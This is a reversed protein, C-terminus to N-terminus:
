LRFSLACIQVITPAKKQLHGNQTSKGEHGVDILYIYTLLGVKEAQQFAMVARLDLSLNTRINPAQM